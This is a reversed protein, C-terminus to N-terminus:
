VDEAGVPLPGPLTQGTRLAAEHLHDVLRQHIMETSATLQFRSRPWPLKRLAFPDGYVVDIRTGRPPRSDSAAGNERTGFLAVPVVPAGSTLALWALGGHISELKGTGRRGEPFVIVAQGAALCDAATRLAGVDPRDRDIPIQGSYRLLRGTWGAFLERKVMAHALRPTRLILLPGDLWGLHNSAFIVPGSRPVKGRGHEAIDWGALWRSGIGRM